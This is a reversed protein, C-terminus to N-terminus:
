EADGLCGPKGCWLEEVVPKIGGDFDAESVASAATTVLWGIAFWYAIIAACAVSFVVWFVRQIQNFGKDFNDHRM